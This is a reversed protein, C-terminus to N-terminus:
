SNLQLHPLAPDKLGSHEALSQVWVEAAAQAVATANKVWQVM